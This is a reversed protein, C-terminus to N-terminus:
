GDVTLRDLILQRVVTADAQGRTAKMVAGVLAGVAATKGGRIKAVVDPQAEIAADVASAVADVDSMLRLGENAVVTDVDDGTRLVGDVAKRALGTSLEGDAVLGIVRAVQEASIALEAPEVDAENAKQALYGLWWNRAEAASAGAATTAAVLDVVGANVMSRLEFESAGLERALRRRRAAPMEPLRGRLTQVWAPDPALPVLDPEPFYRYDTAEEKSRGSTTVGTDEHFHRTEQIVRDGADLVAGQRQM